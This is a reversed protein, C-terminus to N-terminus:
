HAPVETRVIESIKKLTYDVDEVSNFKSFSFRVAPRNPDCGIATLVHSGKTSGSTCASGASAAIGAMDLNYLVMDGFEVPPLNVSLVTYLSQGEYDGNFEADPVLSRIGEIMRRRLNEIHRRDAAMNAVAIEAAKGLGVIGYVNETGARMNREQSGGHVYPPIKVDSNVYIFGCGKPGHFKHASGAMFDLGIKKVNIPFHAFTQVTDSHFLAGHARCLRGIAEIDNLTGIENNAHM